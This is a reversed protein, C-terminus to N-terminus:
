HQYSQTLELEDVLIREIFQYVYEKDGDAFRDVHEDLGAEIDKLLAEYNIATLNSDELTLRNNFLYHFLLYTEKPYHNTLNMLM